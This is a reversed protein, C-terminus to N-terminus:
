MDKLQDLVSALNQCTAHSHHAFAADPTGDLTIEHMKGSLFLTAPSADSDTQHPIISPVYLRPYGSLGAGFSRSNHCFMLKCKDRVTAAASAHSEACLARGVEPFILVYHEGPDGVVIPVKRTVLNGDTDHSSFDATVRHLLRFTPLRLCYNRSPRFVSRFM